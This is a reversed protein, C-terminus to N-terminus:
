IAEMGLAARTSDFISYNVKQKVVEIETAYVTLKKHENGALSKTIDVKVYGEVQVKDGQMVDLHDIKREDQMVVNFVSECSFSQKGVIHAHVVSLKCIFAGTKDHIYCNLVKGTLVVRNM